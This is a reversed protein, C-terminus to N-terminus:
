PTAEDRVFDPEGNFTLSINGTIIGDAPIELPLATISAAGKYIRGKTYAESIKPLTLWVYVERLKLFAQEATAFGPDLPLWSGPVEITQEISTTLGDSFGASDFDVSSVRNGSRGLNAATRGKLRLPYTAVSSAAIAEPIEYVSLSTDSAEANDSLQVLVQAGTTPAVFAVFSDAPIFVGAGLAGTLNITAGGTVDKATLTAASTITTDVPELRSGIPLMALDVITGQGIVFNNAV